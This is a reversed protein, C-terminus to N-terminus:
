PQSGEDPPARVPRGRPSGSTSCSNADKNFHTLGTRGTAVAKAAYGERGLIQGMSDRMAEEDDIILIHSVDSM